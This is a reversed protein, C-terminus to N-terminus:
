TVPIWQKGNWRQTETDPGPDAPPEVVEAWVSGQGEITAHERHYRVGGDMYEISLLWGAEGKHELHSVMMCCPMSAPLCDGYWQTDIPTSAGDAPLADHSPPANFYRGNAYRGDTRDKSRYDEQAAAIAPLASDIVNDVTSRTTKNM